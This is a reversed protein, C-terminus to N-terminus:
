TYLCPSSTPLSGYIKKLFLADGEINPSESITVGEVSFEKLARALAEYNLDSEELNVHKIEGRDGYEIGSFHMHMKKLCDKGLEKELVLLISAIEEYTNFGGNSRSHLHAFDVCPLVGEVDKSLEVVELLSGYEALGGTTEPRIWITIGEDRLQEVLKKLAERVREHVTAPDDQGYYASHFTISWGGCLHAVRATDMIRKVSAEVKGKDPSNLNVYYPAHATLVVGTEVGVKRVEEAMRDGMRVGRVFELEMADLNLKRVTKIGDVSSSKPSCIPVGATGFLLGRPKILVM